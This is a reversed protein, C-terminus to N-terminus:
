FLTELMKYGTETMGVKAYTNQARVNEREVYLRFGCVTEEAQGAQEKAAEYLTKFVGKRRFEPEVYISHIWWFQGNRWDSWETTVLLCGAVHGRVEGVMYFGRAPNKFVADVGKKLIDRDLVKGETEKAMRKNFETIRAADEPEAIRTTIDNQM